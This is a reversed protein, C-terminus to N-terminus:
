FQAGNLIDVVAGGRSVYISTRGTDTDECIRWTGAELDAPVPGGPKRLVTGVAAGLANVLAATAALQGLITAVGEYLEENMAKQKIWAARLSDGQGDNAQAGIDIDQLPM